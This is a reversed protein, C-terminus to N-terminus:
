LVTTEHQKGMTINKRLLACNAQFLLQVLVFGTRREIQEIDEVATTWPCDKMPEIFVYRETERSFSWGHMRFISQIEDSMWVATKHSDMM